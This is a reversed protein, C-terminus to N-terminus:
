EDDKSRDLWSERWFLYEDRPCNAACPGQCTVGKLAVTNSLQVMKGTQEVIMRQIPFAVKYRGGLAVNM